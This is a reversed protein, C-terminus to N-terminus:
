LLMSVPNELHGKLTALFAAGVAGDVVRHDCSLTLKMMQKEVLEGEELALEPRIAGVALICADPPNVIATFEDIGMMGLNSISFTNGQMEESSLQRNRAKDVFSRASASIESLGLQDAHKIVPVVLGEDVAVAMGINIDAHYRIIDGLWSANINPHKRLAMACAKIVLDNFSFKMDFAAKIEKRAEMANRMDVSIKLYFHPATFKSESLRKAITKRMMSVREDRAELTATFVKNVAPAPNSAYAEIDRKVIRGDEGSGQVDSLNVNFEEALKRALPSAKVRGDSTSSTPVTPAPTTEVKTVPAPTPEAAVSKPAEQAPAKEAPADTPEADATNLLDEFSEGEEGLIAVRGNVPIADGEGAIIHLVVGEQDSEWDMAAKDTEVEGILDGPNLTDGVKIAISAIVGEEMTDSMRPLRLFEAM